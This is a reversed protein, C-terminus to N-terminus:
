RPRCDGGLAASRKQMACATNCQVATPAARASAPAIVRPLFTRAGCPLTSALPWGLRSAPCRWLSCVAPRFAPLPSVTRCSRVAGGTVAAARCAGGPALAFLPAGGRAAVTARRAGPYARELGAAVRTRSSHGGGGGRRRPPSVPGPKCPRSQGNEKAEPGKAPAKRRSSGTKLRLQVVEAGASSLDVRITGLDSAPFLDPRLHAYRETMVVSYHGLIEKLKEISAGAMVWQSAFTHRTAEYWGLGARTLGLQKLAARLYIGPTHKDIKEGDCRLPPIIRGAGGSKLKWAKLIPALADRIPVMRSDKDKLPGRVSERVHIRRAPVDVHQWRLAFVEGTRLGALAGIAYAVNLPEPLALFIGRVDDLREIFPTKKPDHTPRILRMLSTPLGRAPNGTALGRETLDVFVASLLAIFIRITAPNLKEALKVEVFARIRAVDVASPKLHGFHPEIHKKWRYRDCDATRHTLKRRDLIDPVLESLTPLGRPDPPLWARHQAMDGRMKALVREADERTAFGGRTRRLGNERWRVQWGSSTQHIEGSGWQRRKRHRTM